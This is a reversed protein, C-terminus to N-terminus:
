SVKLGTMYTFLTSYYLNPNRSSQKLTLKAQEVAPNGKLSPHNLLEDVRLQVQAYKNQGMLAYLEEKHDALVKAITGRKKTLDTDKKM